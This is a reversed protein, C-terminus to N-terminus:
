DRAFVSAGALVLEGLAVDGEIIASIQDPTTRAAALRCMSVVDSTLTVDPEGVDSALSLSRLFTGGGPGTLVIRATKNVRPTGTIEMATPLLDVFFTSMLQLRAPDLTPLARNTARCIDEYHTWLEFTRTILMMSVSSETGNDNIKFNPDAQSACDRLQTAAGFWRDVVAASPTTHLSAVFSLTSEVHSSSSQTPQEGGGFERLLVEEVGVLHSALGHITGYQHICPLEWENIRLSLMLQHLEDVTKTFADIPADAIQGNLRQGRPRQSTAAWLVHARLEAPPTAMAYDALASATELPILDAPVERRALEIEHPELANIALLAALELQVESPIRQSSSTM